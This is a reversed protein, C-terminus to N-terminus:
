AGSPAAGFPNFRPVRAGDVDTFGYERALDAVFHIRGSKSLVKRDAALAAVARGLYETSESLDYRFRRRIAESTMTRAVRETQMFGPMLTVVAIRHRRVDAAICAMLRNITVHSLDWLLNGSYEGFRDGNLVTEAAGEMLGDTVGVILGRRKPVMLRLAERSALFYATPGGDMQHRWNAAPLDWFPTAWAAMSEAASDSGDAAGWVANALVDLGGQEAAVREFLAAVQGPDTADTAVAIGRGGRVGVEDATDDITGPAGDRPAPGGRRTRGAVYVTAGADGLALAIGRGAGRSGGMVVAVLRRAQKRSPM